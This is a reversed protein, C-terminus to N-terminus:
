SNKEYNGSEPLCFQIHKFSSFVNDVYNEYKKSSISDDIEVLKACSTIKVDDSCEEFILTAASSFLYIKKFFPIYIEVPYQKQLLVFSNRVETNDFSTMPSSYHPKLYIKSNQSQLRKILAVLRQQTKIINIKEIGLDQIPGDIFLVDNTKPRIPLINLKVIIEKWSLKKVDVSKYGALLCFGYMNQPSETLCKSFGIKLKTIQSVLFAAVKQERSLENKNTTEIKYSNTLLPLQFIKVKKETLVSFVLAFTLIHFNGIFYVNVNNSFKSFFKNNENRRLILNKIWSYINKSELNWYNEFIPLIIKPTNPLAENLFIHLSQSDGMVILNKENPNIHSLFSQISHLNSIFYIHEIESYNIDM